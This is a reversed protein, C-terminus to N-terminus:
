RTSYDYDGLNVVSRIAEIDGTSLEVYSLEDSSDESIFPYMLDLYNSSHGLGIAHGLEHIITSKVEGDSIKRDDFKLLSIEIFSRIIRKSKGVEYDTLGLYNEDYKEMLNDEFIITIDADSVSDTYQFKIRGDAAKWIKFAYDIYSIYKDKFNKSSSEQVYVKLPYDSFPWHKGDWLSNDNDDIKFYNHSYSTYNIFKKKSFDSSTEANEYIKIRKKDPSFESYYRKSIEAQGIGPEDYYYVTERSSSNPKQHNAKQSYNLPSSALFVLILFTFTYKKIM